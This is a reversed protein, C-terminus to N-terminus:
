KQKEQLVLELELAHCIPMLYEVTVKRSLNEMYSVGMPSVGAQRALERQSWGKEIRKIILANIIEEYTM